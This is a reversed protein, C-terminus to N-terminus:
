ARCLSEVEDNADSVILRGAPGNMRLGCHDRPDMIATTDVCCFKYFGYSMCFPMVDLKVSFIM